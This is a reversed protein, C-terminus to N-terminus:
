RGLGKGQVVTLFRDVPLNRFEQKEGGPWFVTLREIRRAGGLGFHIRRDNQSLYAVDSHVVAYQKRGQTELVVRAGFAEAAGSKPVLIVTVWHGGRTDNRLLVAPGRLNSIVLDIDGDNDIDGAATGRGILRRKFHPGAWESVDTFHGRGDNALLLDPLGYRETYSAGPRILEGARVGGTSFFLDLDGDNDYDLFNPSFGTFASTAQALGTLDSVDEFRDGRNRYLTYVQRKTCPVVMDFFGDRDYDGVAVGMSSEPIGSGDFAVGAALGEEVFTGDGRNRFLFNETGDNTVFIDTFGDGDMDFCAAGMGKGDPRNLGAKESVDTFTGDRNNRFLRDPAGPFNFPAPYDRIRETGFLTFAMFERDTTYTLYNQVYLDLWGDGDFDLFACTQGWLPDDVGAEKAVNTFTGDGNNRYLVNPGYNSVYLDLDGDNDYDGVCCGQGYGPDGVGAKETVDTFTGDGNNHYLRNTISPDLGGELRNGNVLYIDLLGDGDYDFLAVGAGMIELYHFKGSHGNEHRFKIGARATIDTFRPRAGLRPDFRGTKEAGPAKSSPILREVATRMESASGTPEARPKGGPPGFRSVAAFGIAFGAAFCALMPLKSSRKAM